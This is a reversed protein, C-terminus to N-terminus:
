KFFEMTIICITPSILGIATAGDIARFTPNLISGSGDTIDVTPVAAAAVFNIYFPASSSFLVYKAGAPVTHSEAVGAELVRVDIFTSRHLGNIPVQYPDRLSILPGVTAGFVYTGVGLFAVLIILCVIRKM